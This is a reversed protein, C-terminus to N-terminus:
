HYPSWRSRCPPICEKGVRREESRTEDRLREVIPRAIDTIELSAVYELGLRLVAPGLRYNGADSRELYGLHELTQVIRFVTTRPVALAKAIDPAGLQTTSRDFLQLLRLGRELGPVNYRGRGAKDSAPM